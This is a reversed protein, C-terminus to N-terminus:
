VNKRAYELFNERDANTNHRLVIIKSIYINKLGLDDCIKEKIKKRDLQIKSYHSIGVFIHAHITDTKEGREINSECESKKIYEKTWKHGPELFTIYDGIHDFM